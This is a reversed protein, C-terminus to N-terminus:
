FRSLVLEALQQSLEIRKQTNGHSKSIRIEVVQEGSAASLTGM